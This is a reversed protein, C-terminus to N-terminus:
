ANLRLRLKEQLSVGSAERLRSFLGTIEHVLGALEANLNDPFSPDDNVRTWLQSALKRAKEEPEPEGGDATSEVRTFQFKSATLLLERAVLDSLRVSFVASRLNYEATGTQMGM